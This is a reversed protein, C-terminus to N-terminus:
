FFLGGHRIATSDNVLGSGISIVDNPIQMTLNRDNSRRIVESLAKPDARLAEFCEAVDKVSSYFLSGHRIATLGSLASATEEPMPITLGKSECQTIFAAQTVPDKGLSEFAEAVDEISYEVVKEM